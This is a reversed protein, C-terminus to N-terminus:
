TIKNHLFFACRSQLGDPELRLSVCGVKHFGGFVELLARSPTKENQSGCYDRGAARISPGAVPSSALAPNLDRKSGALGVAGNTATFRPGEVIELLWELTGAVAVAPGGAVPVSRRARFATSAVSFHHIRLDSHHDISKGAV